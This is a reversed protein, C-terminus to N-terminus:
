WWAARRVAGSMLPTPQLTLTAPRIECAVTRIGVSGAWGSFSYTQESVDGRWETELRHAPTAHGADSLETWNARPTIATNSLLVLAAFCRSSAAPVSALTDSYPSTSTGDQARSQIIAAAATGTLDAGDVEIVQLECGTQTVGAFDATLVGATPAAGSLAAFLVIGDTTGGVARTIRSGWTISNGSLSPEVAVGSAVSFGVVVLYLRNPKPTWSPTDYSTADTASNVLAATPAMAWQPTIRAFGNITVTAANSSDETVSTAGETETTFDEDFVKTGGFASTSFVGDYAIARYMKGSMRSSTGTVQSGLELIDTTNQMATTVGTRDSGLQTFDSAAPDAISGPATFYQIRGDSQRWSYLIWLVAGDAITPASSSRTTPTDTLTTGDSHIFAILGTTTVYFAYTTGAATVASRKAVVVNAASPVWKDLAVRCLWTHDGTFSLPVSDPASAYSGSLGPLWLFRTAATVLTM